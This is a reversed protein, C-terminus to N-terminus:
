TSHLSICLAKGVRRVLNIDQIGTAAELQQIVQRSVGVRGALAAQTLNLATRARVIEQAMTRTVARVKFPCAATSDELQQLYKESKMDMNVRRAPDRGSHSPPATATATSGASSSTGHLLTRLEQPVSPRCLSAATDGCRTRALTDIGDQRLLLRIVDALGRKCAKMLATEQHISDSINLSARHPLLVQEIFELRNNAVAKHLATYGFRDLEDVCLGGGGGGGGGSHGGMLLVAVAVHGYAAAIHLLPERASSPPASTPLRQHELLLSVMDASGSQVALSLATDRTASVREM